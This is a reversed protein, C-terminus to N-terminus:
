DYHFRCSYILLENDIVQYILRHELDIRRSWFGVLDYKLPEPKGIGQFPTRKIAKILENIKVLIKSDIKQWYLSDEWANESFRVEM